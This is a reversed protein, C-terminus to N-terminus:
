NNERVATTSERVALKVPFVDHHITAQELSASKGNAHAESHTVDCILQVARRGMEALPIRVSTVTPQFNYQASVDDFGTVSLEEPVNIGLEKAKRITDMAIPDNFCVVATFSPLRMLKIGERAQQARDQALLAEFGEGQATATEFREMQFIISEDVKLGNNLLTQRYTTLRQITSVNCRADLYAIRRHGLGILHQVIQRMGEVDDPLLSHASPFACGLTVVPLNLLELGFLHELSGLCIVGDVWGEDILWPMREGDSPVLLIDLERHGAEIEIGNLPERFYPVATAPAEPPAPELIVALIGTTARKGHRRAILIRAYRNSYKHYGLEKATEIIRNRTEEAVRPDGKLALAVLQQTVGLKEGIQKQTVAM